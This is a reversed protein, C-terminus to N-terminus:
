ASVEEAKEFQKRGEKTELDCRLCRRAEKVAEEETFGKEVEDFSCIREHVPLCSMVPREAELVEEETLEVPEVYMSPRTVTYDRMAPKGQLYKDIMNAVVKGAGMAEIVVNPGTVVDGGAFVGEISTAYTEPNVIINGWETFTLGEVDKLFSIDPQESIAILLTDLEVVFESGKIPIPRRRGSEDIDGLRMKLCEVGTIKGDEILIKKPSTLYLMNVNEEICAEAEEEFAPMEARTRRYIITAEECGALRCAVRASDVAANGGGIVGVRPGIEIDEGLNVKKLVEVAQMVGEADENPISLKLPKHAGTAIFISDYSDRLDNFTIDKGVTTNTKFEVGLEKINEIDYNLTDKPLRHEPIYVALAGGIVPLSEFITVKYGKLALFYAATLGAPGSGIIAVKEKKDPEKKVSYKLKNKRAYDTAYRKLARIAIPDGFKGSQCKTECPHSCVRACVSPLPNDKRIINFAEQYKGHAILSIYVAAETDIPCVHQCPSSIIEKCVVAPCRKYKIHQEYEDLFYKITSLLPNPATQGLGCMSADKVLEGLEELIEIDGEKGKGECINTVIELMREIGERCTFCKGCSEDQLFELFYRATDVMCTDEDMVVMGGSGMMSGVEKLKEYDVPLDLMKEPICGGSPGGTQVAKFRKGKPIGGGIDYVMEKLTIGMPVEVLGTNNIKGVLSFIKTGKSGETGISSFWDAGKAIIFPVNAWTEVNNINTPKGWIGKQAPFPPRQRPEGKKGEISAMLASEEGCVFAGAGIVVKIDFNFGTNLINEGLLGYQRMQEIATKVNKVALPYEHRVYIFGQHAGIAYAGVLMGELVSHPNGELLSRDMYAGPDGEDANCVVYKTDGKAKRTIEWKLGTPFGAGGRGRLGSKKIEEIIQDCQMSQLVKGLATYGGVAIYEEISTPDILGNNAFLIRKQRKYFPVDKEYAIKEGSMPDIYLLRDVIKDNLITEEIIEEIDDPTVRQYFIGKPFIVMIPGRECFGHCGTTRVDVTDELNRKKLTDRLTQTVYECGSAHCGTGSCVSICLKDPDRKSIISERLATLDDVDTLKKM